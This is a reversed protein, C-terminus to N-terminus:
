GKKSERERVYNILFEVNKPDTAPLIGHGLNFIFKKKDLRQLIQDVKDKIANKNSLLVAPDLNGQVVIDKQWKKMNDVPTFQDVSVVDVGTQSIYKDYNYGSARPFGIIPVNPFKKKLSDVIIKTPKIVFDDYESGSLVGAWSDFLMAVDAGAKIQESLYQITNNTIFDILKAVLKQNNYLFMKSHSFDHRGRGEIMYSVVTWPSGAFGILSTKAPLKSKVKSVTEYINNIKPDLKKNLKKFCKESEFKELAPGEGEKFSVNWGLAHPLVLIDSFIIAADLGFREVPQLTVKAAKESDYCLELFGSTTKRVAMYEPLYRGAQRLLWIPTKKGKGKITDILCTM